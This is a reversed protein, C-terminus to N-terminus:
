SYKNATKLLWDNLLYMLFPLRGKDKRQYWKQCYMRRCVELYISRNNFFFFFHSWGRFWSKEVETAQALQSRTTPPQGKYQLTNPLTRPRWGSSLLLLLGQQPLRLTELCQLYGKPCHLVVARFLVRYTKPYWFLVACAEKRILGQIGVENKKVDTHYAIKRTSAM